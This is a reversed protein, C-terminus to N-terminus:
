CSHHSLPTCCSCSSSSHSSSRTGYSVGSGCPPRRRAPRCRRVAKTCSSSAGSTTTCHSTPSAYRLSHSHLSPMFVTNRAYLSTEADQDLLCDLSFIEPNPNALITQTNLYVLLSKPWRVDFEKAFSLVQFYSAMVKIIVTIDHPQAQPLPQARAHTGHKLKSGHTALSTSHSTTTSHAPQASPSPSDRVTHAKRLQQTVLLVVVALFGLIVLVVLFINLGKDPCPACEYSDVTRTYSTDCVACLRSRYGVRCQADAGVTDDWGAIGICVHCHTLNGSRCEGSEDDYDNLNYCQHFSTAEPGSRWRNEESYVDRLYMGTVPCEAGDLCDLCTSTDNSHYYGVSCAAFMPFPSGTVHVGGLTINISFHGANSLSTAYRVVYVGYPAYEITAFIPPKSPSSSILVVSWDDNVGTQVNGFPDQSQLYFVATGDTVCGYLGSVGCGTLTWTDSSSTSDSDPCPYPGSTAPDSDAPFVLMLTPSNSIEEGELTVTILHEGALTELISFQYKGLGIYTASHWTNNDSRYAVDYETPGATLLGNGYEDDLQVMFGLAIGAETVACIEYATCDM